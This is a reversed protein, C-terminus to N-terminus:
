SGGGKGHTDREVGLAKLLALRRDVGHKRLAALVRSREGATVFVTLAHPQVSPDPAERPAEARRGGREGRERCGGGRLKRDHEAM